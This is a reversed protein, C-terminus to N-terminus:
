LGRFRNRTGKHVGADDEKTVLGVHRQRISVTATFRACGRFASPKLFVSHNRQFNKRPQGFLAALALRQCILWGHTDSLLSSLTTAMSILPSKPSNTVRAGSM